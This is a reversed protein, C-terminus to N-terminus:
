RKRAILKRPILTLLVHTVDARNHIALLDVM